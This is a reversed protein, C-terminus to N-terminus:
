LGLCQSPLLLWTKKLKLGSQDLSHTGPIGPRLLSVKGQFVLYLFLFFSKLIRIRDTRPVGLGLLGPPSEWTPPAQPTEQLRHFTQTSGGTEVVVAQTVCM